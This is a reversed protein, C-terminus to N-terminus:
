RKIIAKVLEPIENKNFSGYSAALIPKIISAWEVMGGSKAAMKFIYSQLFYDDTFIHHFVKTVVWFYKM